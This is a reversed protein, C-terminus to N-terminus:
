GLSQLESTHEKRDVLSLMMAMALILALIKKM